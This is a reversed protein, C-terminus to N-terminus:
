NDKRKWAILKRVTEETLKKGLIGELDKKAKEEDTAKEEAKIKQLLRKILKEEAKQHLFSPM